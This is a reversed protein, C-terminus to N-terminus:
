PRLFTVKSSMLLAIAILTMGDSAAKCSASDGLDAERVFGGKIHYKPILNTTPMAERGARSRLPM